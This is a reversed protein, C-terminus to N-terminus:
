KQAMLPALKDRLAMRARHVRSKVTGRPVDLIEAIQEYDFSEIDRLVLVTRFEDDLEDLAASVASQMEADMLRQDASDTPAACAWPASGADAEGRGSGSDLSLPTPRRGSKRRRSISLNVAIRFMWTYLGSRGGFRGISELVRVFVEQTLDAAEDPDGCLRRCTNFVRDQYKEVLRTLSSPDGHRCQDVLAADEYAIAVNGVKM